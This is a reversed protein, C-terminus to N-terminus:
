EGESSRVRLVMIEGLVTVAGTISRTQSHLLATSLSPRIITYPARGKREGAERDDTEGRCLGGEYGPTQNTRKESLDERRREREGKSGRARSHVRKM